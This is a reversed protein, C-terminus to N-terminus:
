NHGRITNQIEYYRKITDCTIRNIKDGKLFFFWNGNIKIGNNEGTEKATEIEISVPYTLDTTKTGGQNSIMEVKNPSFVYYRSVEVYVFEDPERDIYKEQIRWYIKETPKTISILKKTLSGYKEQLENTVQSKKPAIEKEPYISSPFIEIIAVRNKLAKVKINELGVLNEKEISYYVNGTRGTNIQGHNDTYELVFGYWNKWRAAAGGWNASGSSTEGTTKAIKANFISGKNLASLSRRLFLFRRGTFCLTGIGFILFPISIFVAINRDSVGLRMLFIGILSFVLGVFTVWYAWFSNRKQINRLQKIESNSLTM